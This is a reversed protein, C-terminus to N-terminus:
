LQINNNNNKFANLNKYLLTLIKTCVHIIGIYESGNLISNM